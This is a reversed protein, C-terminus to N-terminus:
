ACSLTIAIFHYQYASIAETGIEVSTEADSTMCLITNAPLLSLACSIMSPALFLSSGITRIRM